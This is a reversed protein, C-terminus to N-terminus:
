NGLINFHKLSISGKDWFHKCQERQGLVNKDNNRPRKKAHKVKRNM